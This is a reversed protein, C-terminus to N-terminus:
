FDLLRSENFLAHKEFIEFKRKFYVYEKRRNCIIIIYLSIWNKLM